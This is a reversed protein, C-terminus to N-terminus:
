VKFDTIYASLVPTCEDLLSQNLGVINEKTCLESATTNCTALKESAERVEDPVPAGDCQTNNSTASIIATSANKFTTLAKAKKNDLKTLWRLIRKAQRERNQSRRYMEFLDSTLCNRKQRVMVKRKSKLKQKKRQKKKNKKTYKENTKKGKEKKKIRRQKKTNGRGKKTWKFSNRKKSVRSKSDTNKSKRGSKMVKKNKEKLKRQRNDKKKKKKSKMVNKKIKKEQRADRVKRELAEGIQSIDREVKNHVKSVQILVLFCLLIVAKM